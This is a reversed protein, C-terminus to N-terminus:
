TTYSVSPYATHDLSLRLPDPNTADNWANFDRHM